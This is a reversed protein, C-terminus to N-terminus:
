ALVPGVLKWFAKRGLYASQAALPPQGSDVQHDQIRKDNNFIESARFSLLDNPDCINVWRKPFHAPLPQGKELSVLSNIEYFFPAQSGFTILAEVNLGPNLVLTDVAAIGGLSHAMVYVPANAASITQSIFDRIGQGRTQYLIIDGAIPSNSEGAPRFIRRNLLRSLPKLIGPVARAGAASDWGMSQRLSDVWADREGSDPVVKELEIARGILEATLARAVTLRVLEPQSAGRTIASQTVKDDLIVKRVDSWLADLGFEAVAAPPSVSQVQTALAAGRAPNMGGSATQALERLEALPDLYLQEWVAVEEPVDKSGVARFGGRLPSSQYPPASVGYKRFWPCEAIECAPHDAALRRRVARLMEGYGAERVGTGHVVVVTPM